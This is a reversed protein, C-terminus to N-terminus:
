VFMRKNKICLKRLVETPSKLWRGVSQLPNERSLRGQTNSYTYRQIYCLELFAGHVPVLTTFRGKTLSQKRQRQINM